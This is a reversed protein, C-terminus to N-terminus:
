FQVLEPKFQKLINKKQNNQAATMQQYKNSLNKREQMELIMAERLAKEDIFTSDANEQQEPSSFPDQMPLDSSMEGSINGNAGYFDAADIRWDPIDVPYPMGEVVMSAEGMAQLAAEVDSAGPLQSQLLMEPSKYHLM